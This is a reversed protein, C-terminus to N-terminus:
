AKQASLIKQIIDEKKDTTKIDLLFEEEAIKKVESKFKEDLGEYSYKLSEKPEPRKEKLPPTVKKEVKKEEKVEKILGIKLAREYEKQQVGSLKDPLEISEGVMLTKGITPLQVARNAIIRKGM